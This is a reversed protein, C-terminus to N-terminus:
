VVDCVHFVSVGERKEEVSRRRAERGAEGGERAGVRRERCDREGDGEVGVRARIGAESAGATWGQEGVGEM